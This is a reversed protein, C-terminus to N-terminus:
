GGVDRRRKRAGMRKAADAPLRKMGGNSGGGGAEARLQAALQELRDAAILLGARSVAGAGREINPYDALFADIADRTEPGLREPIEGHQWSNVRQGSVLAV